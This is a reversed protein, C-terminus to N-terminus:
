TLNIFTEITINAGVALRVTATRHIPQPILPWITFRNSTVIKNVLYDM